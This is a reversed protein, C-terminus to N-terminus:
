DNSSNRKHEQEYGQTSLSLVDIILLPNIITTNGKGEYIPEDAVVM